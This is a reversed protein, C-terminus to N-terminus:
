SDRSNDISRIYGNLMQRIEILEDSLEEYQEDTILDRSKAKQLWTITEQLSGRAYYCFQRNEGFHYRGHGESINAAISDAAQILQTGVSYKAFSPWDDVEAWIKEALRMSRKYVSLDNIDM